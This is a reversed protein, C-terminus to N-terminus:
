RMYREILEYDFDKLRKRANALGWRNKFGCMEAAIEQGLNSTSDSEMLREYHRVRFANVLRYFGVQTIFTGALTHNMASVDRIVEIRKLSPELYRRSVITLVENKVSEWKEKEIRQRTNEGNREILQRENAEDTDNNEDTVGAEDTVNAEDTVGAENETCPEELILNDTAEVVKELLENEQLIREMNENEITKMDDISRKSSVPRSPHLIRCLLLVHWAAMILDIFAKVMQNDLLFLTWMVILWVAPLYLMNKAFTFPFDSENSFNQAHYSEVKKAVWRCEKVLRYTLLISVCVMICEWLRKYPLLLDNQHFVVIVFLAGLLLFPSCFYAISLKKSWLHRMQFFRHYLLAFCVPYYLIGFSRAFFWSGPDGPCLMYPLQLATAAYFFTVQRRAPYFYDSRQDFPRCMHFWRVIACIVGSLIYTYCALSYFNEPQTFITPIDM